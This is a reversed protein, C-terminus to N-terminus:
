PAAAATSAASRARRGSPSPSRISGFRASATSSSRRGPIPGAVACATTSALSPPTTKRDGESRSVTPPMPGRVTSRIRGWRPKSSTGDYRGRFRASRGNPVTSTFRAGTESSTVRGPTPGTRASRITEARRSRGNSRRSSRVRIGPTPGAVTSRSRPLASAPETGQRRQLPIKYLAVSCGYETGPAAM